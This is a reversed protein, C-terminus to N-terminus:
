FTNTSYFPTKPIVKLAADIACLEACRFSYTRKPLGMVDKKCRFNGLFNIPNLGCIENKILRKQM